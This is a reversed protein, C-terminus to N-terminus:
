GLVKLSIIIVSVTRFHVGSVLCSSLGSMCRLSSFVFTTLITKFLPSFSAKNFLFVFYFQCFLSPSLDLDDSISRGNPRNSEGSGNLCFSRSTGAAATCEVLITSNYLDSQAVWRSCCVSVCELM